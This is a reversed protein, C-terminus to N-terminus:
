RRKGLFEGNVPELISCIAAIPFSDADYFEHGQCEFLSMSPCKPMSRTNAFMYRSSKPLHRFLIVGILGLCSQLRRKVSSSETKQPTRCLERRDESTFFDKKIEGCLSLIFERQSARRRRWGTPPPAGTRFAREVAMHVQIQLRHGVKCYRDATHIFSRILRRNQRM